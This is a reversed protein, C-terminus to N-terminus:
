YSRAYGADAEDATVALNQPLDRSYPVSRIM